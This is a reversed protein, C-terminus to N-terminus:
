RSPVEAWYTVWDFPKRWKEPNYGKGHEDEWWEAGDWYAIADAKKNDKGWILYYGISEPNRYRYKVIVRGPIQFV